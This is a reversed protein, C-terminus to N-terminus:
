GGSAARCVPTASQISRKAAAIEAADWQDEGLVIVKVRSANPGQPEFQIMELIQTRETSKYVLIQNPTNEKGVVRTSSYVVGYPHTAKEHCIRVYEAARRYAAQFDAAVDFTERPAADNSLVGTSTCATLLAAMSIIGAWKFM